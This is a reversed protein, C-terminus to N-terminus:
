AIRASQPHPRDAMRTIVGVRVAVETAQSEVRHALLRNRSLTNLRYMPNGALSRRHYGSAKKCERHGDRAIVDVADNRWAASPMNASWHAARDRPPTSPVAGREAIVAHCPRTDYAGDGSIVDIHEDGPIQDLLAALVDGDTVDQHMLLAARVHGTNADVALHVKRWTRRKWHSRSTATANQGNAGVVKRPPTSHKVTGTQSLLDARVIFQMKAHLYRRSQDARLLRQTVQGPTTRTVASATLGIDSPFQDILYPFVKGDGIDQPSM